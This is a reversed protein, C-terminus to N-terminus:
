GTRCENGLMKRHEGRHEKEGIKAGTTLAMTSYLEGPNAAFRVNGGIADAAEFSM